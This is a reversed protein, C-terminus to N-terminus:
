RVRRQLAGQLKRALTVWPSVQLGEQYWVAALYSEPVLSLASRYRLCAVLMDQM